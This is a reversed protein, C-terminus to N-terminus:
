QEETTLADWFAEGTQLQRQSLESRHVTLLRHLGDGVRVKENVFQLPANGADLDAKYEEMMARASWNHMGANGLYYLADYGRQQIDWALWWHSAPLRRWLERILKKHIPDRRLNEYLWFAHNWNEVTSVHRKARKAIELTVGHQYEGVGAYSATICAMKLYTDSSKDYEVTRQIRNEIRSEMDSM